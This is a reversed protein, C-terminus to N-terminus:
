DTSTVDGRKPRQLESRLSHLREPGDVLDLRVEAAESVVCVLGVTLHSEKKKHREHITYRFTALHLQVM